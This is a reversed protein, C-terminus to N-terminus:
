YRLATGVTAKVGGSLRRNSRATATASKHSPVDSVTVVVTDLLNGGEDKFEVQVAFSKASGDTNDATVEVTSRGASDTAPAGLQVADKADVGNKVDDLRRGAEATASAIAGTAQAGISAVASAAKSAVSSPGSDDSCGTLGALGTLGLTVAAAARVAGRRNWAM